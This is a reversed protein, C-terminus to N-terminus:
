TAVRDAQPAVSSEPIATTRISNLVTVMRDVQEDSFLQEPGEPALSRFPQEYLEGVDILGNRAVSDTLMDLFHLQTATLNKGILFEAFAASVAEPNLGALSRLFLGLGGHQSKAHEIDEETGFGNELFIQELEELDTSTIQKNRLIKQVALQDEHNRLYTRVKSEFRAMGMGSGALAKVETIKIDGLEDAFDTYLPIQQTRPPLNKVLGRLRRRLTELMPLTVDEWWAEGSVDEIFDYQQRIATINQLTPALLGAAIEQVQERLRAYVPDATLVALQLRLILYDFRKAAPSNERDQYQSPLSVLEDVRLRVDPTVIDWSEPASFEEVYRLKRRVEVNRHNMNAVEVRLRDALQWRLDVVTKPEEEPTRDPRLGPQELEDLDRLLDARARFLRESMSPQVRGATVPLDQNFYEINGCFDFVLFTQKDRNPGKLDPCLRTGRGMMQWYKTKSRILKAFVLNVVAPVDLGTDLMDVSVAIRLGSAPDEFKDILSQAHSVQHTIMQTHEGGLDPYQARFREVILEAHKNNRAFIITKGLREADDVKEGLTMLAELMKDITDSNFLFRNLGEPDVEDPVGSDDDWELEDWREKEEESLEDYKIGSHLFKLPVEVATPPVLWNDKVAQDLDYADTPVGDELNFLRYTNRDIEDKPTATLGVLLSDFHEFIARYKQYVSRHAEDVVVLDFYGPGFRREETEDIDNILNMMTPYTSVYVRASTDKETLLNVTPVNPLHAKFANVAQTVLVQRDALFLVRKVWGARILLDVLAIVTRTKGTGTAMVLLAQRQKDREFHEAIRRIARHQYPRNVIEDNITQGGLAKRGARRQILTRLQDKTYFGQVPRPPYFPADWIQTEYGNTCFIVPRQGHERELADAYLSAQHLGADPSKTTPKAEVLALPKGNDDWLVYDVYGNGSKTPIGSVPYERDDKGGLGWGAEKLLLDVLNARTEAETYDHRDPVAANAAKAVKVEERLRLVEEDLEKNKRRQAALEAQQAAFDAAMRQIEAQKKRRVEAPVPRPIGATDFALSDSPRHEPKRTYNRAIWYLVHFLESVAKVADQAAVLTQRHVAINGQRRVVDMKGCLVPGAQLRMTPESIRANLDDRYPRRLSDDVEYLWGVALELTRRAYFCSVRPDAMAAREARVAEDFLEPWEPQLFAFNSRNTM